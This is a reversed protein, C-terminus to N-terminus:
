YGPVIRRFWGMPWWVLQGEFGEAGVLRITASLEIGGPRAEAEVWRGVGASGQGYRVLGM